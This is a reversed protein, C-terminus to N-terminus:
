LHKRLYTWDSLASQEIMNRHSQFIWLWGLFIWFAGLFLVLYFYHNNIFQNYITIKEPARLIILLFVSAAAYIWRKETLIREVKSNQNQILAQASEQISEYNINISYSDDIKDKRKQEVLQNIIQQLNRMYALFGLLHHREAPNSEMRVQRRRLRHYVRHLCGLKDQEESSDNSISHLSSLCDDKSSHHAHEHFVDKIFYFLQNAFYKCPDKKGQEEQEQIAPLMSSSYQFNSVDCIGNRALEFDATFLSAPVATTKENTSANTKKLEEELKSLIADAHKLQKNKILNKVTKCLEKKDNENSMVIAFAKGQISQVGQYCKQDEDTSPIFFEGFYLVFYYINPDFKDKQWYSYLCGTLWIQLKRHYKKPLFMILPLPFYGDYNDRVQHALSLVLNGTTNKLRSSSETDLRTNVFQYINKHKESDIYHGLIEPQGSSYPSHQIKKSFVFVPSSSKSRGATSFSISGSTNPVWSCWDTSRSQQPNSKKLPKNVHENM